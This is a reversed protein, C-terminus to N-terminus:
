REPVGVVSAGDIWSQLFVAAALDDVIPRRKTTPSRKARTDAERLRRTAEVTSLREDVLVVPVPLVEALVSSELSAKAAAAGSAGSLSIPHGVVVVTVQYEEVIAAIAAHDKSM